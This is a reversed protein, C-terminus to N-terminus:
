KYSRLIECRHNHLNEEEPIHRQTTWQFDTPTESPNAAQKMSTELKGKEEDRFM